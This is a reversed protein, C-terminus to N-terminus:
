TLKRQYAEGEFIARTLRAEDLDEPTLLGFAERAAAAMRFSGAVVILQEPAAEVQAFAEDPTSVLTVAAQTPTYRALLEDPTLARDGPAQTYVFHFQPLDFTSLYAAVNKDRFMGVIFRISKAYLIAPLLYHAAAPTHGGDIIMAHNAVTLRELRAPLASTILSSYHTDLPFSLALLKPILALPNPAFHLAANKEAAERELVAQVEPSQPVSVAVGNPQIIGVKHWAISDLSGGLMAVHEAEIPTFVALSNAVTNVADFRGGIGVELVAVDIRQQAFWVFALATTTEFTSYAHDLTQQAAFVQQAATVFDAQSIRNPLGRQMPDGQWAEIVVIRERLSHLHPSTYLGVKMQSISLLDALRVCTTGKGTSGTVVISRFQQQPNGLADLLRHMPDLTHPLNSARIPQAIRRLTDFYQSDM